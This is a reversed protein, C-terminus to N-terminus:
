QTNSGVERERIDAVMFNNRLTTKESSGAPSIANCIEQPVSAEPGPWPAPVKAGFEKVVTVAGGPACTAAPSNGDTMTLSTLPDGMAPTGTVNATVTPPPDIVPPVAVVLEAPIAVTPLQVRPAPSPAFASVAVLPVRAGTVNVAQAVGAWM